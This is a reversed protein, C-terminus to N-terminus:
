SALRSTRAWPKPRLCAASSSKLSASSSPRSESMARATRSATIFIRESRLDRVHRLVFQGDPADVGALGAIRVREEEPLVDHGDTPLGHAIQRGERGVAFRELRSRLLHVRVRLRACNWEDAALVEAQYVLGLGAVQDGVRRLVVLLDVDAADVSRIAVVGVEFRAVGAQPRHLPEVRQWPGVEALARQVLDAARHAEELELGVGLLEDGCRLALMGRDLDLLVGRDGEDGAVDLLRGLVVQELRERLVELAMAEGM